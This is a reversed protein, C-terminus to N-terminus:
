RCCLCWSLGCAFFCWSHSFGQLYASASHKTATNNTKFFHSHVRQPLALMPLVLLLLCYQPPFSALAFATAMEPAAPPMAGTASRMAAAAASSVAAGSRRQQSWVPMECCASPGSKTHALLHQVRKCFAAGTAAFVLAAAAIVFYDTCAPAHCHREKCTLPLLLRLLHQMMTLHQEETPHLQPICYSIWYLHSGFSGPAYM